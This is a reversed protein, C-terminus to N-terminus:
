APIPALVAAGWVAPQDVMLSKIAAAVTDTVTLSGVTATGVNAVVIRYTVLDGRQPSSPSLTKRVVLAEVAPGVETLVANTLVTASTGCTNTVAIFATNSVSTLSCVVGMRGSITFTFSAGPGMVLGAASWVYRTGGSVNTVIPAGIPSPQEVAVNVLVPSLTDSVVLSTVTAEGTNTVVVSYDVSSGIGSGQVVQKKVVEIDFRPPTPSFSTPNTMLITSSCATAATVFASNSIPSTGCLLGINGTVTFTFVGGPGLFTLASSWSFRTGSAVSAVAAGAWGAPQSTSKGVLVPSVTDTLTLTTITESGINTVIIAYTVRDGESTGQIIQKKLVHAVPSAPNCLCVASAVNSFKSTSARESSCAPEADCCSTPETATIAYVLGSQLLAYGPADVYSVTGGTVTAIKDSAKLPLANTRYIDYHDVAPGSPSTWTLLVSGDSCDVSAALSAPPAQRPEYVYLYNDDANVWLAGNAFTPQSNIYRGTPASAWMCQGARDPDTSADVAYVVASGDGGDDGDSSFYIVGNSVM